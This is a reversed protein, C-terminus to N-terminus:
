WTIEPRHHPLRTNSSKFPETEFSSLPLYKINQRSAEGRSTLRPSAYGDHTALGTKLLTGTDKRPHVM